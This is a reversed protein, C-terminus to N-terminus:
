HALERTLGMGVSCMSLSKGALDRAEAGPLDLDPELVPLNVAWEEEEDTKLL